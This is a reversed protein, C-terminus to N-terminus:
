WRMRRLLVLACVFVILSPLAAVLPQSFRFLHGLAFIIQAVLYFMIGVLAGIAMNVGFSNNRGANSSISIPTALLVMAGVTLPMLLKQWFLGWYKGTPQENEQLYHSYDYLMSLTMADGPVSLTPLEDASWLNGVEMEEHNLTLLEGDQIRKERVEQLTWNRGPGIEATSASLARLLRGNEDFEILDIEGPVRDELLKSLHTYRNATVSWLGGRPILVPDRYRLSAKQREATQLLEPTVYEMSVWLGAMLVLTPMAIAGLLKRLPFGTCAIITLENTRCLASLAAMSGLLAIVPAMGLVQHPLSMVVYRAAALGDYDLRSGELEQIFSMLGFVSGLILVTLLWGRVLNLAIFRQLIM